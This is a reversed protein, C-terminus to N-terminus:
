HSKKIIKETFSSDNTIVTIIYIGNTLHSLDIDTRDTQVGDRIYWNKGLIDTIFITKIFSNDNIEIRLRDEFPNPYVNIKSQDKTSIGLPPQYNNPEIKDKFKAVFGFDSKVPNPSNFFIDGFWSGNIGSAGIYINEFNDKSISGLTENFSNSGCFTAWSLLGNAYYKAIFLQTNYQGSVLITDGFSGKWQFWGSTLVFDNKDVIVTLGEETYSALGSWSGENRIWILRGDISYKALFINKDNSAFPGSGFDMPGIFNGVAYFNEGSIDFALDNITQYTSTAPSPFAKVWLENFTSDLKIILLSIGQANIINGDYKYYGSMWGAVYINNNKDVLIARLVLQSGELKNATLFKGESSYKIIYGTQSDSYLSDRKIIENNIFDCLYMKDVFDGTIFINNDKDFALDNIDPYWAWLIFNIWEIEGFSNIKMIFGPTEESSSNNIDITDCLFRYKFESCIIIDENNDVYLKPSFFCWTTELPKIWEVNFNSDSKVLFLNRGELTRAIKITDFCDYNYDWAEYISYVNGAKDTVVSYCKSGGAAIEQWEIAQSIQQILCFNLIILILRM